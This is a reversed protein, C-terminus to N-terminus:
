KITFIKRLNRKPPAQAIAKKGKLSSLYNANKPIYVSVDVQDAENQVDKSVVEAVNQIFEDTELTNSAHANIKRM